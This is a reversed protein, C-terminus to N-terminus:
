AHSRLVSTRDLYEGNGMGDLNLDVRIDTESTKRHQTVKRPPLRLFEYIERWNAAMLSVAAEQPPAFNKSKLFIAQAGLNKALEVDTARDGIVFSNSLDYDGNLYKALMGTEPKRTPLNEHPFSRDICVESFCIGEGALLDLLLNHVPFFDAEPLSDTGLGDQNTVMVLEYDTEAAIRALYTIAGPLLKLKDFSDVQFDAPEEILTGDRDIFFVRKM